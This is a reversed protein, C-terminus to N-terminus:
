FVVAFASFFTTTGSTGSAPVPFLDFGASQSCTQGQYSRDVVYFDFYEIPTQVALRQGIIVAGQYPHHSSSPGVFWGLWSFIIARDFLFNGIKNDSTPFNVAEEFKM